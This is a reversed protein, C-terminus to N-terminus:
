GFLVNHIVARLQSGLEEDTESDFAPGALFLGSFVVGVSAAMRVRNELPVRPDALVQRLKNQIDEHESEHAENHLKELAAQNREHMAFLKRQPLMQVAIEDVLEGWQELTVPEDGMSLFANKGFEHIRMHLALLIDDKSEFYYYIAAKTVGLREAIQRLSTADFGQETFLDLAVDLIRQRTDHTAGADPAAADPAARDALDAADDLSLVPEDGAVAEVLSEENQESQDTQTM